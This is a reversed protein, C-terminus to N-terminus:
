IFFMVAAGLIAPILDATKIEKIELLNIGICIVLAGGISSLQNLFAPTAYPQILGALLAIAGQIVFVPIASLIVGWGMTAAIILSVTGDLAAKIYLTQNNGLGARISGYIVMAGVCFIISSSVFAKGVQGANESKDKTLKKELFAGFREISEQIHLLAGILGGVVLSLVLALANETKIADLIGVVIVAVGLAQMIVRSVNPKLVKKLLLGLGTGVIIAATNLVVGLM